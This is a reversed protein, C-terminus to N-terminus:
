GSARLASPDRVLEDYLDKWQRNKSEILKIKKDRRWGKVEKERDKARDIGEFAEYYVLWNVNYKQTFGKQYGNRHEKVRKILDQTSGTYLVNKGRNTLIYCYGKPSIV